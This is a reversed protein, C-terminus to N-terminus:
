LVSPLVSCGNRNYLFSQFSVITYGGGGRSHNQPQFFSFQIILCLPIIIWCTCGQQTAQEFVRSWCQFESTVLMLMKGRFQYLIQVTYELQNAARKAVKMAVEGKLQVAAWGGASKRLHQTPGHVCNARAHWWHWTTYLMVSATLQSIANWSDQRCLCQM